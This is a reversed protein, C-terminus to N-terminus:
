LIPLRLPLGTPRRNAAVLASVNVPLVPGAINKSGRLEALDRHVEVSTRAVVGAPREGPRGVAQHIACVTVEM